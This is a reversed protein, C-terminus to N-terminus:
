NSNPYVNELKWKSPFGSRALVVVIWNDNILPTNWDPNADVDIKTCRKDTEVTANPGLLNTIEDYSSFYKRMSEPLYELNQSGYTAVTTPSLRMFCAIKKTGDPNYTNWVDYYAEM